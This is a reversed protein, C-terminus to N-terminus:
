CSLKINQTIRFAQDCQYTRVLLGINADPKRQRGTAGLPLAKDVVKEGRVADIFKLDIESLAAALVLGDRWDTREPLSVVFIDQFDEFWM